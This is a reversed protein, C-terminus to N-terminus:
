EKGWWAPPTSRFAKFNEYEWYRCSPLLERWRDRTSQSPDIVVLDRDAGGDSISVEFLERAKIDTLPLSFGWVLLHRTKRLQKYANKWVPLWPGSTVRKDWFPLFIPFRTGEGSYGRYGPADAFDDWTSTRVLIKDDELKWNVSGHLKLLRPLKSSRAADTIPYLTASFPINQTLANARLAREVVLDYNFSIIADNPSLDSLLWNHHRCTQTGHAKRLLAVIARAFRGVVNEEEEQSADALKRRMYARSQLTYFAKEMSRRYDLPLGAVQDLVWDVADKDKEKPDLRQLLDFFDRDLPSLMDSKQPYSVARSAGAGLVLTMIGNRRTPRPSM